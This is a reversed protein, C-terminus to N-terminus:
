AFDPGKKGNVAANIARALRAVIENLEEEKVVFPPAIMVHDGAVGDACGGMAYVILGDAFAHEFVREALKAAPPFPQKSARDAVLELGWM